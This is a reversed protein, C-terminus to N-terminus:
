VLPVNFKKNKHLNELEELKAIMKPLRENLQEQYKMGRTYTLLCVSTPDLEPCYLVFIIRKLASAWMAMQMQQQYDETAMQDLMQFYAPPEPTKVEIGSEVNEIDMNELDKAKEEDIVTLGDPSWGLYNGNSIFGVDYIKKGIQQEALKKAIPEFILGRIVSDKQQWIKDSERWNSIREALVKYCLTEASKGIKGAEKDAKTRPEALFQSATSCTFRGARLEQWEPNTQVAISNIFNRQDTTSANQYEEFFQGVNFNSDDIFHQKCTHIKIM